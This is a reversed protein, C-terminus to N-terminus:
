MLWRSKGKRRSVLRAEEDEEDREPKFAKARLMNYTLRMQFIYRICDLFDDNSKVVDQKEGKLAAQRSTGWRDWVYNEFNQKVTSCTNFIIIGPSQWEFKVKLATRIANLGSDRNRKYADVCYIGLAAFTEAVTLGSTREQENASNDEIRLAIHETDATERWVPIPRDLTHNYRMGAFKWGEAEHMTYSVDDVTTLDNSYLERYVHWVNDPSVAAWMVAIPKRPHPDIVTVRPWHPPIDFPDVWYPPKAQWEPFVLGALHLFRGHERAAREAPPLDELFSTIARRSLYGGNDVCNDWIDFNFSRVHSGRVNAKSHLVENIWPESLPTMTMWIHGDFDVLGRRLGNFKRQPAPEDCWAWHGNPGEFAEDDQEYSMVHIVSGNKFDYRVPVGRQNKQINVIEGKPTWELMKPHITQVVNIEFNEVAIRGVNPVPIPDGNCLRVRRDVHDEPLWLREGLAHSVAEVTGATTKGSRNGGLVLRVESQDAAHFEPQQGIPRYYRIKSANVAEKLQRVRVYLDKLREYDSARSSVETM